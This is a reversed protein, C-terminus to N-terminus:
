LINEICLPPNKALKINRMIICGIGFGKILMFINPKDALHQVIRSLPDFHKVLFM